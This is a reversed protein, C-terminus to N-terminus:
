CDPKDPFYFIWISQFVHHNHQLFTSFPSDIDIVGIQVVSAQNITKRQGSYILYNVGSGSMSHEGEYICEELVVLDGYELWVHLLSDEHCRM